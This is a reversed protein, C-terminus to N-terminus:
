IQADILPFDFANQSKVSGEAWEIQQWSLASSDLRLLSTCRTGYSESKIFRPALLKEMEEGVGTHPLEEAPPCSEDRMFDRLAAQWAEPDDLERVNGLQERSRQVKPWDNNIHGNSLGHIGPALITEGHRNSFCRIDRQEAQLEGFLLNFGAYDGARPKLSAIFQGADGDFNLWDTVLEGRSHPWDRGVPIGERVNTILAFRLQRNIALWSGGNRLDRGGFIDPHDAWWQPEATPREYFEDRNAAIFLPQNPNEPYVLFALCM